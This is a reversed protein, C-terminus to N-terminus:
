CATAAYAAPAPPSQYATARKSIPQCGIVDMQQDVDMRRQFNRHQDVVEFRDTGPSGSVAKGLMKFREVALGQEPVTGVKHTTHAANRPTEENETCYTVTRFALM